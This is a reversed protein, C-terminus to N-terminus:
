PCGLRSFYIHCHLASLSSEHPYSLTCLLRPSLLVALCDWPHKQHHPQPFPCDFTRLYSPQHTDTADLGAQGCQKCVPNVVSLFTIVLHGIGSLPLYMPRPRPLPAM